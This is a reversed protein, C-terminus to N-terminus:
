PIVIFFVGKKTYKYCYSWTRFSLYKKV